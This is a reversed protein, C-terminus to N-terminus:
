ILHPNKHHKDSVENAFVKWASIIENEWYATFYKRQKVFPHSAANPYHLIDLTVCDSLVSRRLQQATNIWLNVRRLCNQRAASNEWGWKGSWDIDPFIEKVSWTQLAVMLESFHKVLLCGSKCHENLNLMYRYYHSSAIISVCMERYTQVYCIHIHM